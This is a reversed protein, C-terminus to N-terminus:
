VTYNISVARCGHLLQSDPADVVGSQNILPPLQARSIAENDRAIFLYTRLASLIGLIDWKQAM